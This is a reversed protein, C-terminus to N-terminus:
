RVTVSAIGAELEMEVRNIATDYDPSEYYNGRRPFRLEDIEISALGASTRIRASVGAPVVFNLSAAGSEAKVRTTGANEPLRVDTSSAGTELDLETVILNTLDLSTENAGTRVKIAYPIGTALRIDWEFGRHVGIAWPFDRAPVELTLEVGIGASHQRQEVGGIFEGELLLGPMEAGRLALRGAGHKLTLRAQTADELPVSLVEREAEDKGFVARFLFWIGVLIIVLPWFIMWISIGFQDFIGANELLLVIGILLILSGWFLNGRRM